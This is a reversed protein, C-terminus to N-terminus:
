SYLTEIILRELYDVDLMITAEGATFVVEGPASALSEDEMPEIGDPAVNALRPIQQAVVGYFPLSAHGSLGKLVIMRARGGPAAADQEFLADVTVLPIRVGRWTARGMLWAPEGIGYVPAPETYTAVEAVLSSPVLLSVNTLPVVLCRIGSDQQENAQAM